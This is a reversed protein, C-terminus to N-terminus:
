GRQVQVPQTLTKEPSWGRKLRLRLTDARIGVERAWASLHQTKGLATLWVTCRRNVAQEARTAWKCNDPTYACDNRTRELTLGEPCAGMDKLFLDFSHWRKCVTIGRGGYHAYQANKPNNCRHLMAYWAAYERTGSFGHRKNACSRCRGGKGVRVHGARRWGVTGCACQCLLVRYTHGSKDRRMAEDIVTFEPKTM